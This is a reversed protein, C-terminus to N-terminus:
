YEITNSYWKEYKMKLFMSVSSISISLFTLNPKLRISLLYLISQLAIMHLLNLSLLHEVSPFKESYQIMSLLFISSNTAAFLM